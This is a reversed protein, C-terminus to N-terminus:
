HAHSHETQVASLGARGPARRGGPVAAVRESGAGRPLRYGRAGGGCVHIIPRVSTVCYM